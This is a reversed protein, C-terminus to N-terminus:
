GIFGALALLSPLGSGVMPGPVSAPAGCGPDAADSCITAFNRANADLVFIQWQSAVLADGQFFFGDSVTGPAIDFGITGFNGGAINGFRFSNNITPCIGLCAEASEWQNVTTTPSHAGTSHKIAFSYIYADTSNNAVTYQGVGNIVTETISFQDATPIFLTIAHSPVAGLFVLALISWIRLM